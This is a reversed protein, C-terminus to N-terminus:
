RDPVERELRAMEVPRLMPLDSLGLRRAIKEPARHFVLRVSIARADPPVPYSFVRREGRTIRTDKRVATARWPPVPANGEADEFVRAFVEIATEMPRGSGDLFTTVLHIQRLASGTPLAHGAGKNRVVVTAKGADFDVWLDAAARLVSPGTGDFRHSGGKMHCELCDPGPQLAEAEASTTCLPVGRANRLEAHCAECVAGSVLAPSRVVGHPAEVESPAAVPAAPNVRWGSPGEGVSVGQHCAQCTVASTRRDTGEIPVSHCNACLDRIGEGAESAAWRRMALYLPDSLSKSHFSAEWQEQHARHCTGCPKEATTPGAPLVVALAVVPVLGRPTM